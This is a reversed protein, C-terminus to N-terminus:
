HMDNTFNFATFLIEVTNNEVKDAQGAEQRYTRASEKQSPVSQASQSGQWCLAKALEQVIFNM